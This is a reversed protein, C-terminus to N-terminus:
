EAAERAMAEGCLEDIEDLCGAVSGCVGHRPDGPEADEHQWEWGAVPSGLPLRTIRCCRYLLGGTPSPDATLLRPDIERLLLKHLAGHGTLADCLAAVQDADRLHLYVIARPEASTEISVNRATLMLCGTLARPETSITHVHVRM